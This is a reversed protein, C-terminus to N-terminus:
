LGARTGAWLGGIVLAACAVMWVPSSVVWSIAVIALGAAIQPMRSQKKGYAFVGMGVTGVLFSVMIWSASFDV